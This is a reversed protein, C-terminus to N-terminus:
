RHDATRFDREAVEVERAPARYASAASSSLDAVPALRRLCEIKEESRIPQSGNAGGSMTRCAYEM